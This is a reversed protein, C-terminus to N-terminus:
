SASLSNFSGVKREQLNECINAPVLVSLLCTYTYSHCDTPRLKSQPM